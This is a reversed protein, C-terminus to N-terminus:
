DGDEVAKKWGEQRGTALETERENGQREGLVERKLNRKGRV